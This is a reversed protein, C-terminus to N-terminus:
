SVVGDVCLIYEAYERDCTALAATTRRTATAADTGVSLHSDGLPDSEATPTTTTPM